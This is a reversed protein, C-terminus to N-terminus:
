AASETESRAREVDEVSVYWRNGRKEAALKRTLVMGWAQSWTVALRYAADPLPIMTATTM